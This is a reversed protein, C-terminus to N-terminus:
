SRTELENKRPRKPPRAAIARKRQTPASPLKARPYDARDKARRRTRRAASADVGTLSSNRAEKRGTKFCPGLLRPHARTAPYGLPQLRKPPSRREDRYSVRTRVNHSPTIFTFPSAERTAPPLRHVTYVNRPRMHVAAPCGCEWPTGDTRRRRPRRDRPRRRDDAFQPAGVAHVRTGSLHHVIGPWSSTLPFGSPPGCRNQRAFRDDS